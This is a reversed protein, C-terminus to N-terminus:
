SGLTTNLHGILKRFARGRHSVTNEEELTMQAWVKDFGFPCFIASYPMDPQCECQPKLLITGQMLGEFVEMEGRPTILTAVTQFYAERQFLNPFEKLADLTFNMIEETSRGSGAWRAAHIGPRGNLASIFLGTDEAIIYRGRGEKKQYAFLAKELSNDTLTEGNEEVEGSIGLDDLSVVTFGSTSFLSKVQDVKSRNRSSFLIEKM